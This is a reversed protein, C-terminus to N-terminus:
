YDIGHREFFSEWCKKVSDRDWGHKFVAERPEVGVEFEPIHGSPYVFPINCAMMEWDIMFYANLRNTCIYIDAANILELLQSQSIDSFIEANHFEKIFKSHRGMVIIWYFEQNMSVYQIFDAFGKMHHSTGVWIGINKNLPLGYKKRIAEKNHLPRWFNTDVGIPIVEVSGFKKYIDVSVPSAVTRYTCYQAAEYVKSIVSNAYMPNGYLKQMQPYMEWCLAISKGVVPLFGLTSYRLVIDESNLKQPIEFSSKKFEREAWDWFTDQGDATKVEPNLYIMKSRGDVVNIKYFKTCSLDTM